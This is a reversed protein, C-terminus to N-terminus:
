ETINDHISVSNKISEVCAKFDSLTEKLSNYNLGAYYVKSFVSFDIEEKEKNINMYCGYEYCILIMEEIKGQIYSGLQNSFTFTFVLELFRSDNDIYFGSHFGQKDSFGASYCEDFMEGDFLQCGLEKFLVRVRRIREKM